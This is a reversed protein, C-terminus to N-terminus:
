AVRGKESRAPRLGCLRRLGAAQRRMADVPAMRRDEPHWPSLGMSVRQAMLNAAPSGARITVGEGALPRDAYGDDLEKGPFLVWLMDSWRDAIRDAQQPTLDAYEVLKAQVHPCIELPTRPCECRKGRRRRDCGAALCRPMYELDCNCTKGERCVACGYPPDDWLCSPLWRPRCGCNGERRRIRCGQPTGVACSVILSPKCACTIELKQLAAVIAASPRSAPRSPSSPRRRPM